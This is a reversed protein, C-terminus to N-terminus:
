YLTDDFPFPFDGREFYKAVSYRGRGPPTISVFGVVEDGLVTVLYLNYADLSDSLRGDANEAHQGLERAYVAHRQRYIVERDEQTALRVRVRRTEHVIDPM